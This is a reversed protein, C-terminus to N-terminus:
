YNTLFATMKYVEKAMDAAAFESAKKGLSSSSADIEAEDDTWDLTSDM